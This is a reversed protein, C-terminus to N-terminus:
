RTPRSTASGGTLRLYLLTAVISAAAILAVIVLATVPDGVLGPGSGSSRPDGGAPPTPSAGLAVQALAAWGTIGLLAAAVALVLHRALTVASPLRLARGAIM